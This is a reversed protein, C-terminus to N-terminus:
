VHVRKEEVLYLIKLKLLFKWKRIDGLVKKLLQRLMWWVIFDESELSISVRVKYILNKKFSLDKFM